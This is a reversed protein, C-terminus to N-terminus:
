QYPRTARSLAITSLTIRSVIRLCVAKLPLFSPQTPTRITSATRIREPRSHQNQAILGVM